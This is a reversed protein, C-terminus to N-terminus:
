CWLGDIREITTMLDAPLSWMGVNGRCPIPNSLRRVRSFHWWVPYGEYWPDEPRFEVKAKYNMIAVIKGPWDSVTEWSPLLALLRPPMARSAWLMFNQWEGHSFKKSVSLVCRGEAPLPYQSRNEVTKLGYAILIAYPGTCTFAKIM